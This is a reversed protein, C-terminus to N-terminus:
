GREASQNRRKMRGKAAREAAARAGLSWQLAEEASDLASDPARWYSLTVWRDKRRYRFPESGVEQFAGRNQEDVRFYLANGSILAIMAEGCYVGFGGFMPKSWVNGLDSILDLVHACLDASSPM